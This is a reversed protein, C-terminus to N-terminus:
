VPPMGTMTRTSIVPTRTSWEMSCTETTIKAPPANSNQTLCLTNASGGHTYHTGAMFGEYMKSSGSPCSRSGWHTYVALDSAAACVTCGAEVDHPYWGEHASGSEVETSGM